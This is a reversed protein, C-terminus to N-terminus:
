KQLNQLAVHIHNKLDVLKIIYACVALNLVPELCFPGTSGCPHFVYYYNYTYCKLHSHTSKFAVFFM